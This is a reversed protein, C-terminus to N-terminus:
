LGHTERRWSEGHGMSASTSARHRTQLPGRRQSARSFTLITKRCCYLDFADSNNNNNNNNNNVRFGGQGACMATELGDGKEWILGVPYHQCANPHFGDFVQGSSRTVRKSRLDTFHNQAQLVPFCVLDVFVRACVPDLHALGHWRNAGVAWHCDLKDQFVREVSHGLEPGLIVTLAGRKCVIQTQAICNLGKFNTHKFHVQTAGHHDTAM